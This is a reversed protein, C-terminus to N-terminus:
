RQMISVWPQTHDLGIAGESITHLSSQGQDAFIAFYEMRKQRLYKRVNADQLDNTTKIWGAPRAVVKM